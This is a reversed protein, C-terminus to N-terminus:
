QKVHSKKGARNLANPNCIPCLKPADKRNKLKREFVRDGPWTRALKWTIGREICVALMRAGAGKAHRSLRADLDECVGMYHKAHRLPKDLHLLYCVSM